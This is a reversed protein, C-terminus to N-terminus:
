FLLCEKLCACTYPCRIKYGCTTVLTSRNAFLGCPIIESLGVCHVFLCLSSAWVTVYWGGHIDNCTSNCRNYCRFNLLLSESSKVELAKRYWARLMFLVICIIMMLESAQNGKCSIM